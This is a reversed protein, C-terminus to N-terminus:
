FVDLVSKKSVRKITASGRVNNDAITVYRSDVDVINGEVLDVDGSDMEYTFAAYENKRFVNM